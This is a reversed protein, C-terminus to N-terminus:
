NQYALYGLLNYILLGPLFFLFYLDIIQETLQRMPAGPTLYAESPNSPNYWIRWAAHDALAANMEKEDIHASEKKRPTLLVSEYRKGRVTFVFPHKLRYGAFDRTAPYKKPSRSVRPEVVGFRATARPWTLVLQRKRETALRRHRRRYAFFILLAYIPLSLYLFM